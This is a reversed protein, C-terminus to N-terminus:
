FLSPQKNNTNSFFVNSNQALSSSQEYSRKRDDGREDRDRNFMNQAYPPNNLSNNM